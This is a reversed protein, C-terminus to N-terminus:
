PRAEDLRVVVAEEMGTRVQTSRSRFASQQSSVALRKEKWAPYDRELLSRPWNGLWAYGNRREHGIEALTRKPVGDRDCFIPRNTGIEYFRAWLPPASPDAVVVLDHGGPSQKDERREVRIGKIEAARFWAVAGEVAEIVEPSPRELSMLLRVIGVSECGSLSALEYARAPRPRFDIEDHQACWGTRKGDVRVQCKLICAIGRDFARRAADRRPADLFAFRDLAATERLFDMLRVMAGDNFTIHRPYQKGPPYYQPWGGNPYQATLIYDFGRVFAKQYRQDKTAVLMRALFRLEDTTARNDFTPRLDNRDGAFPRATTDVNKPWGGLDSQYTLIREAIQRAEEGGFWADPKKLYQGPGGAAIAAGGWLALTGIAATFRIFQM